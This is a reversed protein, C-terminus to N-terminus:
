AAVNLFRVEERDSEDRAEAGCALRRLGTFPSLLLGLAAGLLARVTPLVCEDDRDFTAATATASSTLGM